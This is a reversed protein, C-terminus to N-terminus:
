SLTTGIASISTRHLTFQVPAFPMLPSFCSEHPQLLGASGTRRWCSRSMITTPRPRPECEPRFSVSGAVRRTRWASASGPASRRSPKKSPTFRFARPCLTRASRPSPIGGKDRNGILLIGVAPHAALLALVRAVLRDTEVIKGICFWSAQRRHERAAVFSPSAASPPERTSPRPRHRRPSAHSNGPPLTATPATPFARSM